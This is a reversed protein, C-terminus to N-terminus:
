SSSHITALLDFREILRARTTVKDWGETVAENLIKVLSSFRGMDKETGQAEIQIKGDTPETTISFTSGPFSQVGGAISEYWPLAEQDIQLVVQPLQPNEPRNEPLM